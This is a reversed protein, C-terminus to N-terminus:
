CVWDMLHILQIHFGAQISSNRLLCIGYTGCGGVTGKPLEWMLSVSTAEKLNLLLLGGGSKCSLGVGVEWSSVSLALTPAALSPEFM